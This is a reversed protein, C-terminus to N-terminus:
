ACLKGKRRNCGQRKLNLTKQQPCHPCQPCGKDMRTEFTGVKSFCTPVSPVFRPSLPTKRVRM